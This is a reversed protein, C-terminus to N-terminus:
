HIFFVLLFKFHLKEKIKKVILAIALVAQDLVVLPSKSLHMANDYRIKQFRSHRSNM